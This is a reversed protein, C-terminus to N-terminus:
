KRNIESQNWEINIWYKWYNKIEFINTSFFISFLSNHSRRIFLDLVDFSCFINEMRRVGFSIFYPKSVLFLVMSWKGRLLTIKKRYKERDKALIKGENGGITLGKTRKKKQILFHYKYCKRGFGRKRWKKM